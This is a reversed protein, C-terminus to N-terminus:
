RRNVGRNSPFKWECFTTNPPPTKGCWYTLLFCVRPPNTEYILADSGPLDGPKLYMMKLQQSRAYLSLYIEANKSRLEPHPNWFNSYASLMVDAAERGLLVSKDNM